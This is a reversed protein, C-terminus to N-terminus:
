WFNPEPHLEVAFKERVKDQVLRALDVVQQYKALGKNVLVLAQKTHVGVQQHSYGKLGVQDILWGAALKVQGDNQLYQPMLPYHTKLAEAVEKSVIPNHFFSGVNGIIKPNPLKQERIHCVADSVITATLEKGAAFEKSVKDLDGYNLNPKFRKSLEFRVAWIVFRGNEAHKFFSDRYQFQCDVKSFTHWKKSYIYSDLDGFLHRM